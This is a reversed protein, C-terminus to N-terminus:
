GSFLCCFLCKPRTYNNKISVWENARDKRKQICMYCCVIFICLGVLFLMLGVFTPIIFKFFFSTSISSNENNLPVTASHDPTPKGLSFMIIM